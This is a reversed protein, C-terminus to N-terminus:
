PTDLREAPRRNRQANKKGREHLLRIIEVAEEADSVPMEALMRYGEEAVPSGEPRPKAVGAAILVDVIDIGLGKAIAFYFGYGPQKEELKVQSIYSQTIGGRRAIESQSLGSKEIEDELWKTFKAMISKAM